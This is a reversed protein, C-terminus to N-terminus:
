HISSQDDHKAQHPPAELIRGSFRAVAPMQDNMQAQPLPLDSGDPFIPAPLDTPPGEDSTPWSAAPRSRDQLLGGHSNSADDLSPALLPAATPPLAIATASSSPAPELRASTPGLPGSATPKALPEEIRSANSAKHPKSESDRQVNRLLLLSTGAATFLVVLALFSLIPAFSESLRSEPITFPDWAPLAPSDAAARPAKTIRKARRRLHHAPPQTAHARHDITSARQATRTPPEAAPRRRAASSDGHQQAAAAPVAMRPLRPREATAPSSVDPIRALVPVSVPHRNPVERPPLSSHGTTVVPRRSLFEPLCGAVSWRWRLM